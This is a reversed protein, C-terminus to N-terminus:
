ILKKAEPKGCHCDGSTLCLSCLEKRLRLCHHVHLFARPGVTPRTLPSTPNMLAVSRSMWLIDSTVPNIQESRVFADDTAWHRRRHGSSFTQPPAVQHSLVLKQNTPQFRSKLERSERYHIKEQEIRKQRSSGPQQESKGRSERVKTYM